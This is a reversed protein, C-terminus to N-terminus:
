TNPNQNQLEEHVHLGCVPCLSIDKILTHIPTYVVPVMLTTRETYYTLRTSVLTSKLSHGLILVFGLHGTHDASTM